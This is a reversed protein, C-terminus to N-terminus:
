RSPVSRIHPALDRMLQDAKAIPYGYDSSVTCYVAEGPTAM